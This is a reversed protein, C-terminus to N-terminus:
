YGYINIQYNYFVSTPNVRNIDHWLGKQIGFNLKVTLLNFIIWICGLQPGDAYRLQVTEEPRVKNGIETFWHFVM